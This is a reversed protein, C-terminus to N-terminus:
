NCNINITEKKSEEANYAHRISFGAFATYWVFIFRWDSSHLHFGAVSWAALSLMSAAILNYMPRYLENTLPRLRWFYYFLVTWVALLAICAVLGLEMLVQIYTNHLHPHINFDPDAALLPRVAAPGHGFLPRELWNEWGFYALHIRRAFFVDQDRPLEDISLTFNFSVETDNNLRREIKNFNQTILATTALLLALIVFVKSRKTSALISKRGCYILTLLGVLLCGWGSRSGSTLLAQVLLAAIAVSGIAALSRKATTSFCAVSAQTLAVVAIVTLMAQMGFTVHHQGFGYIWKYFLTTDLSSFDTRHLVRVVVALVPVWLLQLWYARCHYIVASFPIFLLLEAYHRYGELTETLEYENASLTWVAHAALVLLYLKSVSILPTPLAPISPRKSTALWIMLTIMGLLYAGSSSRFTFAFLFLGLLAPWLKLNTESAGQSPPNM